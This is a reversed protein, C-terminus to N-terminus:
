AQAPAQHKVSSSHGQCIPTQRISVRKGHTSLACLLPLIRVPQPTCVQVRLLLLQPHCLKCKSRRVCGPLNRFAGCPLKKWKVWSRGLPVMRSPPDRSDGRHTPHLHSHQVCGHPQGEHPHAILLCQHRTKTGSDSGASPGVGLSPTSTGQQSMGVFPM